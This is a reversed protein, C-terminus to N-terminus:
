RERIRGGFKAVLSRGIRTHVSAVEEATLTKEKSRYSISYALSKHGKPVQPGRYLDFLRVSEVLSGGEQHIRSLIDKHAVKDPIILAIDRTVSPYKSLPQILKGKSVFRLLLDFNLEFIYVREELGYKELVAPHIEGLLGVVEGDVELQASRGPHLYLYKRQSVRYNSIAMGDLLAEVIGRLAFFNMMERRGQWSPEEKLGSILGSLFLNEKACGNQSRFIHGLEFIKLNFVKQKTNRVLCQLLGSILTTRLYGQEESLPNKIRVMEKPSLGFKLVEKEGLFSTTIVEWLGCSTLLGKALDQLKERPQREVPSIERKPLSAPINEYGYLRAVEEVLDIERTVDRRFSPVEVQLSGKEEVVKFDLGQLARKVKGKSLKTGLIENIRSLRLLINRPGVEREGEDIVGKAVKGESLEQILQAARDIAAVVGEMDAGREFRISSETQLGLKKATMRITAPSFYASELFVTATHDSVETKLGGMIGALAVPSNGDAIILMDEDLSREMGDITFIREGRRARRVVISRGELKDWDFAHLPHGLEMLVYNTVDVVNNIPRIGVGELRERLWPPSPGVEVDTIVRGAYRRCLKKDEIKLSVLRDIPEGEEKVKTKPLRIREGSLSAVERAVGVISLCDPRNTTVELHLLQDSGKKELTEVELGVMTLREALEQPSLKIEVYEKLWSYSVKM